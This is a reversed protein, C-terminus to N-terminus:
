NPCPKGGVRSWRPRNFRSIPLANEQALTESDCPDPTRPLPCRANKLGAMSEFPKFKLMIRRLSPESIPPPGPLRTRVVYAREREHQYIRFFHPIRSAQEGRDNRRLGDAEPPCARRSDCPRAHCPLKRCQPEPKRRFSARCQMKMTHRIKLGLILRSQGPPRAPGTVRPKMYLRLRYLRLWSRLSM